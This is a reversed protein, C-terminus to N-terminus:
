FCLLLYLLAHFLHFLIRRYARSIGDVPKIKTGKSRFGLENKLISPNGHCFSKKKVWGWSPVSGKEFTRVRCGRGSQQVVQGSKPDFWKEWYRGDEKKYGEGSRRLHVHRYINTGCLRRMCSPPVLGCQCLYAAIYIFFLGRELFKDWQLHFADEEGQCRSYFIDSWQWPNPARHTALEIM